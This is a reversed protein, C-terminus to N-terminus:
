EIKQLIKIGAGADLVKFNEIFFYKNLELHLLKIFAFMIKKSLTPLIKPFKKIYSLDTFKNM